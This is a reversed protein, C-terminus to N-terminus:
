DGKGDAPIGGCRRRRDDQCGQSEAAAGAPPAHRGALEPRFCLGHKRSADIRGVAGNRFPGGRTGYIAAARPKIWDGVQKLREVQRAEIEGTPMPGINLLLNGGGSVCSVLMRLTEDLTYMGGNPQYSWQGGVLTM